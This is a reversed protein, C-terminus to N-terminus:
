EMKEYQELMQEYTMAGFGKFRIIGKSDIMYSTPIPGVRYLTSVEGSSDLLIPFTLGHKESFRSVQKKGMETDTLNVAVITLDTGDFLRQMDPMEETCPPCWTAWFNLMVKKGRLDSLKMTEGQLTELEFDPAADGPLLGTNAEADIRSPLFFVLLFAFAVVTTKKM